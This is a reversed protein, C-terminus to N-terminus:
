KVHITCSASQLGDSKVLAKVVGTKEGSQVIFVLKGSFAKMQPLHFAELCTPDGNAVAKFSGAGTIEFQLLNTAAPCLNGKADVVSATIYSLDKGDATLVNNDAELQIHHPTGATSVSDEAVAKGTNDYAVVRITGPQYVVDNWMLRYRSQHTSTDKSLKGMSKGNVFLEASPYSTYCFVPTVQGERGPWTWHPLLHLTPQQKNWHSRYLYFRDKPIGALDFIGFYSSHSPWKSDYPTPEGLYDFGTWVFEGMTYGLDEQQVFEDDPVQSWSCVEFDYSSCQNDDYMKGKYFGVPFKYIGRSSVTSATESGMLFGQPLKSHAEPYRAPKYNFGPIDLVAAFGKNIADDFRDMGATVPRTPDERHCIDQLRRAIDKGNASSQDPVENGISWMINSPNNRYHHLMNLLDKEVWDDFYFSYGNKVKPAKWEDFSEVMLMIGMEDCLTVLEPAPMNHSTRIADCGMDKLLRIQRRLAATNIAAGLPGLDHHNCVGRFKRPQGNLLFGKGAKYEITRIGFPTEYQDKLQTGEYVQTVAKYMVPTEPSWLVPHAISFQQTVTSSDAKLPTVATAVVKGAADLLRTKVSLTSQKNSRDITTLLQVAANEQTITPTTLYTGWVPVHTDNTVILHVNRYLGAGPYWRSAQEFNELRVALTNQAKTHLFSTIDFSFSNYGYPWNGVKKGNVYVVANSMAGDFLLVAKKGARFEPVSFSLRYWGAGIFPLGGTRGAKMTAEQEGNQVIQVKQLDNNGDFPGKIAWDHPIRVTEWSKDNFAENLAQPHEGKAFKWNKELLYEQRAQSMGKVSMLVMALLAIKCKNM